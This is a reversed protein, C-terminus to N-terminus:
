DVGLNDVAFDAPRILGEIGNRAVKFCVAFEFVNLVPGRPCRSCIPLSANLNYHKMRKNM